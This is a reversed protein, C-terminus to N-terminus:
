LTSIIIDKLDKTREKCRFTTEGRILRSICMRSRGTIVAIENHTKCLYKRGKYELIYKDKKGKAGTQRGGRKKKNPSKEIELENEQLFPILEPDNEIDNLIQNVENDSM